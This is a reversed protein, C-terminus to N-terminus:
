TGHAAMSISGAAHLDMCLGFIKVSHINWECTSNKLHIPFKNQNICFDSLNNNFDRYSEATLYKTLWYNGIIIIVTYNNIFYKWM